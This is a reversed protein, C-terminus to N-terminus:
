ERMIALHFGGNAEFARFVARSRGSAESRVGLDAVSGHEPRTLLWSGIGPRPRWQSHESRAAPLGPLLDLEDDLRKEFRSAYLSIAVDRPLLLQFLLLQLRLTM